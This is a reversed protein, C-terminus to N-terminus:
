KKLDAEADGELDDIGSDKTHPDVQAEVGEEDDSDGHDHHHHHHGGMGGMM